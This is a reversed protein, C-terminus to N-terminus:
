APLLTVWYPTFFHLKVPLIETLQMLIRDTDQLSFIGTVTLSPVEPSVRLKGPRYRSLEQIFEVLPMSSVALKRSTWAMNAADITHNDILSFRTFDAGLGSEIITTKDSQAPQIEVRGEYVALRAQQDMLRVSFRTGLPRLTGVQSVLILPLHHPATEIYVEGEHLHIERKQQNFNIDVRTSTNIFLRTGDALLTKQIEGKNTAYDTTSLFNSRFHETALLGLGTSVSAYTLFQRRSISKTQRLLKSGAEPDPLARFRQQLKQVQQWAQENEPASQRWALCAAHDKETADDAWLRALWNCAQNISEKSTASPDLANELM